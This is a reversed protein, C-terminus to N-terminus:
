LGRDVRESGAEHYNRARKGRTGVSVTVTELCASMIVTEKRRVRVSEAASVM